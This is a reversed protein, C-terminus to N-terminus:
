ASYLEYMIYRYRTISVPATYNLVGPVGSTSEKGLIMINAGEGTELVCNQTGDADNVSFGHIMQSQKPSLAVDITLQITSTSSATPTETISPLYLVCMSGIKVYFSQYSANILGAYQITTPTINSSTAIEFSGDLTNKVAM